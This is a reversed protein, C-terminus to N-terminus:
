ATPSGVSDGLLDFTDVIATCTGHEGMVCLALTRYTATFTEAAPLAGPDVRQDRRQFRTVTIHPLFLEGIEDYGYRDLNDRAAPPATLRHDALVRGVPDRHRLGTRLPALAEVVDEQLRTIAGTKRYFLEFMGQENGSFRDAELRIEPTRRGIEGLRGVAASCQEPTFNAMFLSVHPHLDGRLVFETPASEACWESLRISRAGVEDPPLLVADFVPLDGM